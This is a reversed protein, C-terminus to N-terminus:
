SSRPRANKRLGRNHKQRNFEYTLIPTLSAYVQYWKGTYSDIEIRKLPNVRNSRRTDDSGRGFCCSMMYKYKKNQKAKQSKTKQKKNLLFFM